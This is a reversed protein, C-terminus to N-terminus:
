KRKLTKLIKKVEEEEEGGLYLYKEYHFIAKQFDKKTQYIKGLEYHSEQDDPELKSAKEFEVLAKDKLNQEVYLM